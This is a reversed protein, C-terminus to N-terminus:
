SNSPEPTDPGFHSHIFKRFYPACTLSVYSSPENSKNFYSFRYIDFLDKAARESAIEQLAEENEPLTETGYLQTTNQTGLTSRYILRFTSLASDPNMGRNAFTQQLNPNQLTPAMPDTASVPTNVSIVRMRQLKVNTGNLFKKSLAASKRKRRELKTNLKNATNQFVMRDAQSMSHWTKEILKLIEAKTNPLINAPVNNSTSMIKAAHDFMVKQYVEYASLPKDTTMTAIGDKIADATPIVVTNLRIGISSQDLQHSSNSTSPRSTDNSSSARSSEMEIPGRETEAVSLQGDRKHEVTLILNEVDRDLSDNTHYIVKNLISNKQKAELEIERMPVCIHGTISRSMVNGCWFHRGSIERIKRKPLYSFPISQAIHIARCGSCVYYRDRYKPGLSTDNNVIPSTKYKGWIYVYGQGANSIANRKGYKVYAFRVVEGNSM